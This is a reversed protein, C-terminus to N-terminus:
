APSFDDKSYEPSLTLDLFYPLCSVLSNSFNLITVHSTVDDFLSFRQTEYSMNYYNLM